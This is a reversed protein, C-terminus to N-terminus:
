EWKPLFGFHNIRGRSMYGNNWIIWIFNDKDVVCSYSGEGKVKGRNYLEVFSTGETAFTMDEKVTEWTLGNDTSVSSHVSRIRITQIIKVQLKVASYM